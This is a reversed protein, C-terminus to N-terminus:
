GRGTFISQLTFESQCGHFQSKEQAEYPDVPMYDGDCRLIGSHLSVVILRTRSESGDQGRHRGIGEIVRACTQFTLGVVRSNGLRSKSYRAVRSCVVGYTANYQSSTVPAYLYDRGTDEQSGTSMGLLFKQASTIM